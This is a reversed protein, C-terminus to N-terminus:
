QSQPVAEIPENFLILRIIKKFIETILPSQQSIMLSFSFDQIEFIDAIDNGFKFAPAMDPDEFNPNEYTLYEIFSNKSPLMRYIEFHLADTLSSPLSADPYLASLENFFSVLMLSTLKRLIASKRTDNMLTSVNCGFRADYEQIQEQLVKKYLYATGEEVAGALKPLLSIIEETKLDISRGKRYLPEIAPNEHRQRQFLGGLWKM